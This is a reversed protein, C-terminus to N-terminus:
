MRRAFTRRAALAIRGVCGVDHPPELPLCRCEDEMEVGELVEVVM